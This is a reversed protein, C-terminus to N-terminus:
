LGSELAQLPHFYGHGAFHIIDVDAISQQFADQTVAAGLLTTVGFLEALEEVETRAYPLNEQSDGFVAATQRAPTGDPNNKRKAQCYKLASASPSYAVPNREIFYQDGIKLAHLPLYHLLGHPVLYVIDEPHTWRAIPEILCDYGHWLEELGMGVFERVRNREGFNARVFRGLEDQDLPLTVVDPEEWDARVGFILIENETTFYEALVIRRASM